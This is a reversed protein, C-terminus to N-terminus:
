KSDFGFGVGVIRTDDHSINQPIHKYHKTAPNWLYTYGPDSCSM